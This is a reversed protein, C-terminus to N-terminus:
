ATELREKLNALSDKMLQDFLRVMFLADMVRGLPGMPPTYEVSFAVKTGDDYPVVSLRETLDMGQTLRRTYFQGDRYETILGEVRQKQPGVQMVSSDTVGVGSRNASTIEVDKSWKVWQPQAELDAAYQFVRERPAKIEISNDVRPM